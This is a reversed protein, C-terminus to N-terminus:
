KLLMMKKTANFDGARLRYFYVGSAVQEGSATTGDWDISVTGSEAAGDFSHVLAGNVNYIELIWDVANSTTFSITTTPNFPNPYNQHLEFATPLAGSRGAVPYPRGLMDAFETKVPILEGSGATEIRVLERHGSAVTNGDMDYLLIRLQNNTVNWMFDMGQADLGAQVNSVSVDPGLEYVLYSGGIDYAAETSITTLAGENTTTLEVEDDIPSLRPIPNADGNIVRILYVLDAVTLTLGDANVDTAATQGAINITFANLGVIFFNTFVVADGIEYAVGNLNVDGRDDLSDPHCVWIGGNYFEVCRTPSPKTPDIQICADPTGLGVPRSSEPFRINDLEDWILEGDYNYIRLDVLQENGTPDSFSNDGCDFWHFKIPLFQDGLNQDNAVLFDITVMIGNPTFSSVPPHDSGNNMDAIGVLRVFQSPCSAGCDVDDERYTLYEWENLTGETDWHLGNFNLVSADYDILIEFGGIQQQTEILIDVPKIVGVPTCAGSLIKLRVCVDCDVTELIEVEFTDAVVNCGDDAEICFTYVGFTDPLFCVGGSDSDVPTFQGPGCVMSVTPTSELDDAFIGDICVLDTDGPCREFSTFSPVTLIPPQDTEVTVSTTCSALGCFGDATVVVDYTGPENVTLCVEGNSYTAGSGSVSISAGTGSASVPYCLTFPDNLCVMTDITSPCDVAVPDARLVKVDFSCTDISCDAEATVTISITDTQDVPICVEGTQRKYFGVPSVTIEADAPTVPVVVCVTDPGCITDIPVSTPCFITATQGILVRIDVTDAASEGCEDTVTVIVTHTGPELGSFCISDPGVVGNGADISLINNDPDSVTYPVCVTVSDCTTAVPPATLTISPGSNRKYNVTFSCTDANCGGYGVLTMNAQGSDALMPVCVQGNNLYGDGSVVVSDAWASVSYDFCVTDPECVFLTTDGPCTVTVPDTFNVAIDVTCTDSNCEADAIVTIQYLGSTDPTFCLQGDIWSGFSTQVTYSPGSVPVPICVQEPACLDFSFPGATPCEIQVYDGTEVMVCFDATDALGCKDEVIVSGCYTGSTDPTFCIRGLESDYTFGSTLFTVSIQSDDPDSITIPMCIEQPECQRITTDSVTVTVTPGENVVATIVMRDTDQAGCSDIVTAFIEYTGPESIEVCVRRTAPNYTGGTVSISDINGDDDRLAMPVCITTPECLSLSTDRPLSVIPESNCDVTVTFECSYENCPTTATVTIRNQNSCQSWFCITGNEADYWTNIGTVTVEASDPVGELPFCFTDVLACTFVTTDTPCILEADEDTIVEVLATDVDTNGCSDIATVILEYLGGTMPAFCVRGDNTVIGRNSTVEAIDGDPDIVELPLCIYDAYCLYVSTDPLPTIVPPAGLTVDVMITDAAVSACSDTVTVIIEYSGEIEPFFCVQDSQPDLTGLNTTISDYVDITTYNICIEEPVCLDYSQDPGLDVFPAPPTTVTVLVTDVVEHECNDRVGFIIEYTGSTDPTFCIRSALTDFEGFSPGIYMAIDDASMEVPICIEQLLCLNYEQDPGLDVMPPTAQDVTVFMTDADTLGCEDEVTMVIEYVGTTDLTFCLQGDIYDGYSTSIATINGDPDTIIPEVCLTAPECLGLASDDPLTISPGTNYEIGIVVTDAVSNGCSDVVSATLTYTGATDPMFCIQGTQPDYTGFNPTLSEFATVTAVDVCIEEPGCLLRAFDDGLDVFPDASFDVTILVTDRAERGCEGVVGFEMTYVGATDPVFCINGTTTDYTYINEMPLIYHDISDATITPTVCVEAPACLFASFDDGLSVVPPDPVIVTVNTTDSAAAGCSDVATLIITYVGATDAEFCIRDSADDYTGFSAFVTDLDFDPDAANARLCVTEPACLTMTFDDATSVQPPRNGHVTVPVTCTDAAGCRSTAEVVIDFQSSTDGYFCVQNDGTIWANGSLVSFEINSGSIDDGMLYVPFCFTDPECTWFEQSDPCNIVPEAEYYVWITLSDYKWAPDAGAKATGECDDLYSYIFTYAASSDSDPWFCTQGTSDNIEITSGPGGVQQFWVADGDPDDFFVDFCIEEPACLYFASDLTYISPRSNYWVSDTVIATEAGCEDFVRIEWSYVGATDPTYALWGTTADISGPGSLIEFTLPKSEPDYASVKLNRVSGDTCVKYEFNQDAIVPPENVLILYQKQNITSDATGFRIVYDIIFQTDVSPTFEYYGYLADTVEWTLTGPGNVLEMALNPDNLSDPHFVLTDYVTEGLCIDVTDAPITSALANSSVTLVILLAILIGLRKM